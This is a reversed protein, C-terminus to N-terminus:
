FTRVWRFGFDDCRFYPALRSRASCRDVLVDSKWSSGRASKQDAYEPGTPNDTRSEAYYHPDYGDLCWEFTNEVMDYLGYGNPKMKAVERPTKLPGALTGHGGGKPDNGWPYDCNRLGGRAAKEWEAETPLRLSFRSEHSLWECYSCAEHWSVGVVPQDPLYDRGNEWYEPPSVKSSKVYLAYDHNTVPSQAMEFASVYVEHVPCEDYSGSEAGM